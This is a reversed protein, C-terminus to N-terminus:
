NYKELQELTEPKTNPNHWQCAACDELFNEPFGCETCTWQEKM